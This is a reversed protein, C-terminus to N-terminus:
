KSPQYCISAQQHQSWQSPFKLTQFSDTNTAQQKVYMDSKHQVDQKKNVHLLM